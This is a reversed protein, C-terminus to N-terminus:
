INKQTAQFEQYKKPTFLMHQARASTHRFFSLVGGGGGPCLTDM